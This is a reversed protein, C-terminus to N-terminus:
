SANTGGGIKNKLARDMILLAMEEETRNFIDVLELISKGQNFLSDFQLVHELHWYLYEPRDEFLRYIESKNTKTMLMSSIERDLILMAIEEHSRGMMFALQQFSLGRKRLKNCELLDGVSWDFYEPTENFVTYINYRRNHTLWNEEIHTIAMREITEASPM